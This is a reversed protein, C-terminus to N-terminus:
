TSLTVRWSLETTASRGLTGNATSSTRSWRATVTRGPTSSGPSIPVAVSDRPFRLIEVPSRRGRAPVAAWLAPACRNAYPDPGVRTFGFSVHGDRLRLEVQSAPIRYSRKGCRDIPDSVEPGLRACAGTIATHNALRIEHVGLAVGVGTALRSATFTVPAATALELHRVAIGRASWFCAAAGTLSYTAREELTAHVTVRFVQPGSASPAVAGAAGLAALVSAALVVARIM